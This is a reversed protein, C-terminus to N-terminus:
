NLYLPFVNPVTFDNHSNRSDFAGFYPKWLRNQARKIIQQYEYDNLLVDVFRYQKVNFFNLIIFHFGLFIDMPPHAIRPSSLITLLGTDIDKIKRGGFHFHYSPHINKTAVDQYHRDLHWSSKFCNDKKKKSQFAHIDIAFNFAYLPDTQSDLDNKAMIMNDLYIQYYNLNEPVTGKIRGNIHFCLNKAEYEIIDKENLSEIVAEFKVLDVPVFERELLQKFISLDNRFNRLNWSDM